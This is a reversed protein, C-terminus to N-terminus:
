KKRADKSTPNTSRLRRSLRFKHCECPKQMNISETSAAFGAHGAFCDFGGACHIGLTHGCVCMRDFNGFYSYRGTAEDRYENKRERAMTDSTLLEVEHHHPNIFIPRTPSFSWEQDEPDESFQPLTRWRWTALNEKSM